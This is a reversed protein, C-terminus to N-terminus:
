KEGKYKLSIPQIPIHKRKLTFHVGTYKYQRGWADKKYQEM